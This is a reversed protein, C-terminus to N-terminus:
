AGKAARALEEKFSSLKRRARDLKESLIAAREESWPSKRAHLADRAEESALLLGPLVTSEMYSVARELEATRPTM